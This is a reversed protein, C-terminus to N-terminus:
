GRFRVGAQGRDWLRASIFTITYLGAALRDTVPSTHISPDFFDNVEINQARNFMIVYHIDEVKEEGFSQPTHGFEITLRRKFPYIHFTQAALQTTSTQTRGGAASATWVPRNLVISLPDTLIFYEALKDRTQLESWAGM